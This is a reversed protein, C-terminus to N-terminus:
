MDLSVEARFLFGSWATFPLGMRAICNLSHKTNIQMHIHTRARTHTSHDPIRNCDEAPEVLCMARWGEMGRGGGEVRCCVTSWLGVYHGESALADLVHRCCIRTVKVCRNEPTFRPRRLYPLRDGSGLRDETVSGCNLQRVPAPPSAVLRAM